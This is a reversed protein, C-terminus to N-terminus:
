ARGQERAPADPLPITIHCRVGAPAFEHEVEGGLEYPIAEDILATGVGHHKPEGVAPGGSEVWTLLLRRMGAVSASEQWCVNVRGRPVSLAGHKVANTALEYLAMGVPRSAGSPVEIADGDISIRGGPEAGFPALATKALQLIDIGAWDDRTLVTHIRSLAEIRGRFADRFEERSSSSRVTQEAVSLTTALTNKVRHDLERLLFERAEEIRKRKTIDIMVGRLLKPREGDRVVSVLDHLWVVDGDASLMRYEFEYTDDVASRARCYEVTASRDAPHIHETWFDPRYWREAPYGLFEQAQPGVYTFRWTEADAEWPILRVREALKRFRDESQALADDARKRETIDHGMSIRTGDPLGFDAWLQTHTSGDKSRVDYERFEGDARRIWELVEARLEPDPYALSLPDACSTIEQRTWGLDRECQKNWLFCHGDADFSDILFPANEVIARFREQTTQETRKRDTIDRLISRSSLIRDDEGRVASASLSVDITTGDKRLLQLEVDTISGSQLFGRFTAEVDERSDPHYLRVIPCGVLEQKTYGTADALTQNCAIVHATEADVSLFMDPAHEYFDAYSLPEDATVVQDGPTGAVSSDPAAADGRPGGSSNPDREIM